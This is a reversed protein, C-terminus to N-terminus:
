PHRPLQYQSYIHHSTPQCTAIRVCNKTKWLLCMQRSEEIGPFAMTVGYLPRTTYPSYRVAYFQRPFDLSGEPMMNLKGHGSFTHVARTYADQDHDDYTSFAAWMCITRQINSDTAAKANVNKLVPSAFASAGLRFSISHSITRTQLIFNMAISFSSVSPSQSLM